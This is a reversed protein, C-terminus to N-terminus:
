NTDHKKVIDQLSKKHYAVLVKQRKAWSKMDQCWTVLLDASASFPESEADENSGPKGKVKLPSLSFMKNEQDSQEHNTLTNFPLQNRCM